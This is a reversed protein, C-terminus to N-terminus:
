IHYFANQTETYQTIYVTICIKKNGACEKKITNRMYICADFTSRKYCNCTIKVDDAWWLVLKFFGPPLVYVNFLVDISCCRYKHVALMINLMDRRASYNVAIEQNGSTSRPIRHGQGERWRFWQQDFQWWRFILNFTTIHWNQPGLIDISHRHTEIINCAFVYQRTGALRPRWCVARAAFRVACKIRRKKCLCPSGPVDCYIRLKWGSSLLLIESGGGMESCKKKSDKNHGHCICDRTCGVFIHEFWVCFFIMRVLTMTEM